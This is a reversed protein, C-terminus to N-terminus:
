SRRGGLGWTAEPGASTSQAHEGEVAEQGKCVIKETESTRERKKGGLGRQAIDGPFSEWIGESCFAHRRGGSGMLVANVRRPGRKALLVLATLKGKRGGRGGSLCM